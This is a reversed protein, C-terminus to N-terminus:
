AKPHAGNYVKKMRAASVHTYVQTTSLSEHGLLEKVARLDAGRDLLHTAFTHRLVHPSKKESESIKGIYKRVLRGVAQPYLRDGHKAIFLPLTDSVASGRVPCDKRTKLYERIADLAKRGVPVIREKSGKGRVKILGERQEVDGINLRVLESVRIGTSYLLELVAADRKGEPEGHDQLSFLRDVADESLVNPLMRRLKPTILALAPNGDIIRQRRLYKFFSRLSAIKRAVSRRSFGRDMLSGLYSRLTEKDVAGLERIGESRFFQVAASLDTEYALLTHASFNRENELYELFRRVVKEV